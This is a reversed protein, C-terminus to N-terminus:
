RGAKMPLPKATGQIVRQRLEMAAWGLWAALDPWEKDAEGEDPVFRYVGGEPRILYLDGASSAAFCVDGQAAGRYVRAMQSVSPTLGAQLGFLDTDGIVGGGCLAYLARLQAPFEMPAAGTAPCLWLYEALAKLRLFPRTLDACDGSFDLADWNLHEM